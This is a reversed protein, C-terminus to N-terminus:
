EMDNIMRDIYEINHKVVSPVSDELMELTTQLDLFKSEDEMESYKDILEAVANDILNFLNDIDGSDIIKSLLTTIQLEEQQSIM